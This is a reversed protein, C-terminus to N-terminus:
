ETFMSGACPLDGCVEDTSIRYFMKGQKQLYNHVFLRVVRSGIVGTGVASLVTRGDAM